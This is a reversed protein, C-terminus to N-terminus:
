PPAGSCGRHRITTARGSRRPKCEGPRLALWQSLVRGQLTVSVGATPHPDDHAPRSRAPRDTRRPCRAAVRQVGSLPDGSGHGLDDGEVLLGAAAHLAPEVDEGVGDLDRETGLAAVDHEVLLPARRRDGVVADGDGLLDVELLGELPDAGLEDLLDGLLGVVDRAVAGGRRGDEGLCEDALAQAVDGGAGVRDGELAADLLGDLGDGLCSSACALSTSVLSSIAAVAAMEAASWAIPSRIASASSLTPLSPTMVTSSLLARPRSSSSVSPM